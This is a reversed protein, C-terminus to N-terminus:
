VLERKEVYNCVNNTNNRREIFDATKITFIFSTEEESSRVRIEGGHSRAIENVIFLGLGLGESGKSSAGRVFPKFLNKITDRSLVPGGNTVSIKFLGDKCSASVRIPQGTNGHVLANKLLNSLLQGIRGSDCLLALNSDIETIVERDSNNSVLETVVHELLGSISNEHHLDLAIGGGMRGKTFDVVDDILVSIRQASNQIMKVKNNIKPELNPMANLMQTATLIANLPNRLDHGLVAIFQERLEATEREDMLEKHTEALIVESELQLSILECFMNMSAITATNSLKAPLPDLACLTGFYEGDKRALPVSIYSQFGYIKPTHHEKYRADENVHDIIVSKNTERVEQCLTTTIDLCDGPKLGFDLQDLVACTTWSDETVRAVCVFRLGTIASVAELITPIAGISQIAKVDNIFRNQM